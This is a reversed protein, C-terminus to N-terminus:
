FRRFMRLRDRQRKQHMQELWVAVGDEPESDPAPEPEDADVHLSTTDSGREGPASSLPQPEDVFNTIGDSVESEAYETDPPRVDTRTTSEDVIEAADTPELERDFDLTVPVSRGPFPLTRAPSKTADYAIIIKHGPRQTVEDSTLVQDPVAPSTYEDDGNAAGTWIEATTWPNEDPFSRRTIRDLRSRITM